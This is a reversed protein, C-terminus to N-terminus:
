AGGNNRPNDNNTNNKIPQQASPTSAGFYGQQAQQHQRRLKAQLQKVKERLRYIEEQKKVCEPCILRTSM